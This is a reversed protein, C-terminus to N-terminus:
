TLKNEFILIQTVQFNHNKQNTKKKKGCLSVISGLKHTKSMDIRFAISNSHMSQALLPSIKPNKM